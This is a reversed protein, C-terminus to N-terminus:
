GSITTMPTATSRRVARPAFFRTSLSTLHTKKPKAILFSPVCPRRGHVRCGLGEACSWAAGLTPAGFPPQLDEQAGWALRARPRPGAVAVSVPELREVLDGVDPVRGVAGAAAVDVSVAAGVQEERSRGAQEHEPRVTAVAPEGGLPDRDV